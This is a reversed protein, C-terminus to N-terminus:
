DGLAWFILFLALFSATGAVAGIAIANGANLGKSSQPALAVIADFPVRKAPSPLRTRPQVIVADQEVSLINGTVRAGDALDLTLTTGIPLNAIYRRWDEPERQVSSMQSATTARRVNPEMAVSANRQACGTVVVATALALAIIGRMTDEEAILFGV